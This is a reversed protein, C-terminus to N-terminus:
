EIQDFNSLLRGSTNQSFTTRLLKAFNVLFCRHWLRKKLLTAPRLWAAKNFVVSQCLHKGTFKTFNWLVGKEYFVEPPQKQFNLIKSKMFYKQNWKLKTCRAILSTLYLISSIKSFQFIMFLVNCLHEINVSSWCVLQLIHLQLELLFKIESNLKM